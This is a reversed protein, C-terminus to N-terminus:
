SCSFEATGWSAKMTKLAARSSKEGKIRSKSEARNLIGRLAVRSPDTTPNAPHSTICTGSNNWSYPVAQAKIHYGLICSPSFVTQTTAAHKSSSCMVHTIFISGGKSERQYSQVLLWQCDVAFTQCHQFELCYREPRHERDTFVSQFWVLCHLSSHRLSLAKFPPFGVTWCTKFPTFPGEIFLPWWLASLTWISMVPISLLGPCQM